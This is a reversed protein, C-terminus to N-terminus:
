VHARGIGFLTNAARLRQAPNDARLTLSGLAGTVANRISNKVRVKTMEGRPAIGADEGTYPETLAYDGGQRRAVFVAEDSKRWYLDGDRLARLALAVAPDGTAALEAIVAETEDYSQKGGFSQIIAAPTRAAPAEAEAPTESASAPEAAPMAAPAKMTAPATDQTESRLPAEAEPTTAKDPTDAPPTTSPAATVRSEKGTTVASDQALAIGPSAIVGATLFASFAIHAFRRGFGAVTM